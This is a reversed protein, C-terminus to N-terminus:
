ALPTDRVNGGDRDSTMVCPTLTGDPQIAARGLGCRGCPGAGDGGAARGFARVKDVRLTTVGLGLLDARVAHVDATGTDILAGRLPISRRLAEVLNARTRAHSGRRGTVQEHEAPVSSYYSTALSVGPREFLTWMQDSIHVLNSFIEVDLGVALARDVLDPLAPYSTPEGGIIRVTRVGHAAADDIVTLWDNATMTGHGGTVGSRNYCHTCALTCFRTIDLWLSTIMATDPSTITATPPM